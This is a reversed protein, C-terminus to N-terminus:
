APMMSPIQLVGCRNHIRRVFVDLLCINGLGACQGGFFQNSAVAHFVNERSDPSSIGIMDYEIKSAVAHFVNERSDPSSIGIMDYKIKSAVAHFVNERSDPSPIGIMDYKIKSAVAHFVNERSDPSSIGIMDYKIKLVQASFRYGDHLHCKSIAACPTLEIKRAACVADRPDTVEHQQSFSM